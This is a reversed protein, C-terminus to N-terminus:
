LREKDITAIALPAKVFAAQTPKELMAKIKLLEASLNANELQGVLQEAQEGHHWQWGDQEVRGLGYFKGDSSIYWAYSLGLYIQNVLREQEGERTPIIM